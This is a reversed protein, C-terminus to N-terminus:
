SLILLISRLSLDAQADAEDPRILTKATLEIPLYPGLTEEPPCRLSQDSQASAWASRLRRQACMWKTPKTMLHSVHEGGGGGGGWGVCVCVLFLVAM